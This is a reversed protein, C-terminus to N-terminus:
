IKHEAEAASATRHLERLKFGTVSLAIFGAILLPLTVIGWVLVSFRKAAGDEIGYFTLALVILGQYVGLNGPASPVV